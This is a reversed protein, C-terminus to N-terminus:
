VLTCTEVKSIAVPCHSMFRSDLACTKKLFYILVEMHIIFSQELSDYFWSSKEFASLQFQQPRMLVTVKNSQDTVNRAEILDAHM